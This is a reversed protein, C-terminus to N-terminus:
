RVRTTIVPSLNPVTAPVSQTPKGPTAVVGGQALGSGESFGSLEQLARAVETADQVPVSASTTVKGSADVVTSIGGGGRHWTPLGLLAPSISGNFGPNTAAYSVTRYHQLLMAKAVSEGRRRLYEEPGKLSNSVAGVLALGTLLFAAGSRM